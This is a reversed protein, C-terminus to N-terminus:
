FKGKEQEKGEFEDIKAQYSNLIMSNIDLDSHVADIIYDRLGMYNFSPTFIMDVELPSLKCGIITADIIAQENSNLLENYFLMLAKYNKRIFKFDGQVIKFTKNQKIAKFKVIREEDKVDFEGNNIQEKIDAIVAKLESIKLLKEENSM